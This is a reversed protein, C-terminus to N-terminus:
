RLRDAPALCGRRKISLPASASRHGGTRERRGQRAGAQQRRRAIQPQPEGAADAVRHAPEFEQDGADEGVIQRM